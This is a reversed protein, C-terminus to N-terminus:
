RIIFKNSAKKFGIKNYFPVLKDECIIIIDRGSLEACVAKILRSANGKNQFEPSTAIQSLLVEGNIDYQIVLVSNDLKRIKAINHRVRHSMDVYWTEYDIDFVSKLINFVEDLPPNRDINPQSMCIRDANFCMLNVKKFPRSLTQLLKRGLYESCFIETFGNFDLFDTLEELACDSLDEVIEAVVYSGSMECFVFCESYYFRCFDYKTGYAMLLARIKQAEIGKNPLKSLEDNSFARKIM